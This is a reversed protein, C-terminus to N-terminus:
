RPSAAVAAAGMGLLLMVGAAAFFGSLAFACLVVLVVFLVLGLALRLLTFPLFLLARILSM